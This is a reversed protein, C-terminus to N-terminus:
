VERYIFIGKEHRLFKIGLGFIDSLREERVGENDVDYVLRGEQFCLFRQFERVALSLDHIVVLILKESRLEKLLEITEYQHRLDVGSLPEDLLLLPSDRNISRALLVRQKEGGSLSNFQREKLHEIDLLVMTKETTEMDDESYGSGNTLPYRGTLVVYFCDFPMSLGGDQPLLSVLVHRKREDTEQFDEGNIAYSGRYPLLGSLISLFTSKGSGNNGLVAVMEGQELHLDEIVMRFDERKAIINRLKLM